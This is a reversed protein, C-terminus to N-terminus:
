TWSTPRRVVEDLPANVFVGALEVQRRLAAAIGAASAPSSPARRAPGSSWASRGRAWSSPAARRRRPEHHRLDQGPHLRPCAGMTPVARSARPSSGAAARARREAARPAAGLTVDVDKNQGGHLVTLTVKDGPKKNSVAKRLAEIGSVSTGNVKLIIDGGATPQGDSSAAGTLGAKAAGSQPDVSQVLVGSKVALNM